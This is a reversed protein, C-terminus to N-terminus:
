FLAALGAFALSVLVWLALFSLFVSLTKAKGGSIRSLGIALVILFWLTLLDFSTALSYVAKPVDHPNLFFGLNTPVPNSANFHETDGFFILPIAMVVGVLRVLAAYCTASFVPKFGIQAGLVVNLILLSIGTIILMFIPTGILGSIHMIIATISAGQRVAQDMQEPSMTGARGSAELQNRVMAVAGVKWLMTEILAVSAITMVVLPFIFDPKRAVDDFAESPSFFVGVFRRGLSMSPQPEPAGAASVESM